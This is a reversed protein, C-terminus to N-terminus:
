LLGNITNAQVCLALAATETRLRHSGMSIAQYGAELAAEIEEPSFDGEPGVLMTLDKGTQYSGALTRKKGEACHAMFAHEPVPQRLYDELEIAPNLKPLYSRLSQKMAAVLIKELRHPKIIRRESYACFVPTIEDIGCETAKELFWEFRDINKTPAVAMHLRFPRKGYAEKREIIKVLSSKPHAEEISALCWLGEGNTVAVEHGPQLRLVKACHRSEEEPLSLLDGSLEHVFFVHM